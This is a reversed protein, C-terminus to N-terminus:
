APSPAAADVGIVCPIDLYDLVAKVKNCYPCIKYQYLIIEPYQSAAATGDGAAAAAAATALTSSARTTAIAHAEVQAGSALFVAATTLAASAIGASVRAAARARHPGLPERVSCTTRTTAHLRQAAWRLMARSSAAFLESSSARHLM